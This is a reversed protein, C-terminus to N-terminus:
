QTVVIEKNLHCSERSAFKNYHNREFMLGESSPIEAEAQLAYFRRYPADKNLSQSTTRNKKELHTFTINKSLKQVRAVTIATRREKGKQQRSQSLAYLRESANNSRMKSTNCSGSSSSSPSNVLKPISQTNSSESSSSNVLKPVSRTNCSGSSSSSPSNALKPVSRTNSSESSSSNALKPVSRTNSSESSSSNVLKPVSRANSSESSSLNVLKTVSRTQVMEVDKLLEKQKARIIKSRREKGQQQRTHSRAYLRESVGTLVRKSTKDFGGNDCNSNFLKPAANEKAQIIEFRREKGKERMDSSLNYLRVSAYSLHGKRGKRKKGDPPSSLLKRSQYAERRRIFDNYLRDHAPPIKHTSVNLKQEQEELRCTIERRKNQKQIAQNYLRDHAPSIYEYRLSRKPNNEKTAKQQLGKAHSYLRQYVPPENKNMTETWKSSTEHNAALAYNDKPITLNINGQMKKKTSPKPLPKPNSLLRLKEIEIRRKKGLAQMQKSLNYLRQSADSCSSYVSSEDDLFTGGESVFGIPPENNDHHVEKAITSSTITPTHIGKPLEGTSLADDQIANLSALLAQVPSDRRLKKFFNSEIFNNECNKNLKLTKQYTSEDTRTDTSITSGKVNNPGKKEKWKEAKMETGVRTTTQPEM